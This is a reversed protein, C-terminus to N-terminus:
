RKEVLANALMAAAIVGLFLFGVAGNWAIQAGKNLMTGDKATLVLKSEERFTIAFEM